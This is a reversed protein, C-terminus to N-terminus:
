LASNIIILFFSPINGNLTKFSECDKEHVYLLHYANTSSDLSKICIKAKSKKKKVM